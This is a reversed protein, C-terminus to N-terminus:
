LNDAGSRRTNRAYPCLRRFKRGVGPEVQGIGLYHWVLYALIVLLIGGAIVHWIHYDLRRLGGAESRAEPRETRFYSVCM